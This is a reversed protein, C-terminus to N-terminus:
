RHIELDLKIGKLKGKEKGSEGVGLGGIGVTEGGDLRFDSIGKGEPGDRVTLRVM